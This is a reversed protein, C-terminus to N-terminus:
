RSEFSNEYIDLFSSVFRAQAKEEQSGTTVQWGYIKYGAYDNKRIPGLVFEEQILALGQGCNEKLGEFAAQPDKFVAYGEADAGIAFSSGLATYKDVDVNGKVNGQGPEYEQVWPHVIGPSASCGALSFAGALLLAAFFRKGSM